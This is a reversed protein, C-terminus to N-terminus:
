RCWGRCCRRCNCSPSCNSRGWAATGRRADGGPVARPQPLAPQSPGPRRGDADSDSLGARPLVPRADDRQEASLEDHKLLRFGQTPWTRAAGIRELLSIAGRGAGPHARRDAAIALDAALRRALLGAARRRRVGARALGAVRVMFFEDLNSSFISLFKVRELLPNTDDEAEELVRANFELWSLERNIFHEALFSQESM